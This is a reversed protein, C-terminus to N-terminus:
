AIINLDGGIDDNTYQVGILLVLDQFDVDNATGDIDVQVLTNFGDNTVKVWENLDDGEEYEILLDSIDLTDSDYEGTRLGDGDLIENQNFDTIVDFLPGTYEPNDYDSHDANTGAMDGALWVFTDDGGGGTMTDAGAGGIITDYGGAAMITDDGDWGVVLVDTEDFADTFEIVDDGPGGTVERIGAEQAEEALTVQSGTFVYEDDADNGDWLKLVTVNEMNKFFADEIIAEEMMIIQDAGGLGDIDPLAEGGGYVGELGFSTDIYFFDNTDTIEEGEGQNTFFTEEGWAVLWSRDLAANSKGNMEMSKGNGIPKAMTM